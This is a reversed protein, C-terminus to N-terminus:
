LNPRLDGTELRQSRTEIGRWHMHPIQPPFLSMLKLNEGLVETKEQSWLKVRTGYKYKQRINTDSREHCNADDKFLVFTM